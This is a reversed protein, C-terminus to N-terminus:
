TNRWKALQNATMNLPFSDEIEEEEEDEEESENEREASLCDRCIKEDNALDYMVDFSSGCSDCLVRILDRSKNM